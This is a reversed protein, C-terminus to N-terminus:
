YALVEVETRRNAQHEDDSCKVGNSCRNVLRTEGYGKAVLRDKSIGHSVIYNVAAQARRQSLAKNYADNGRSDTHSSLEIKLTPHEKMTAVLEDLVKAADPRINHKDFDYFINELVFRDGVVFPPKEEDPELALTVKIITDKTARIPGVSLADDSFGTKSASIKYTENEEADVKFEAKGDSLVKGVLRQGGASYITVDAGPLLARTKKNITVGELLIIIKPKVYGFSYIDDSGRGRVRNSSLYGAYEREGKTTIVFAFDDAASNVPYRMNVPKSMNSRSGKAHFIDLGGMGAFGNSSYYFDDGNVTPFMEDGASNITTGANIPKGWSGDSQLESYWIDVGGQGGPMDSAYYLTKEDASLAAHGLSYAKINNYPFAEERWVGNVSKYIILELNKRKVKKNYSRYREGDTGPHTRTVYLVEEKADSAIPGVHYRAHNFNLQKVSGAELANQDLKTSFVKLYSEGTMGSRDTRTLEPEATYLIGFSTTPTVSFEARETNVNAENHLTHATPKEMWIAASDTGAIALSVEPAAGFKSVYQEYQGKAERYKGNQKLAEAYNLLSEKQYDSRQVVQSYWKEALDYNNLYLYSEALHELDLTHANKKAAIKELVKAANAFEYRQLYQQAKTGASPQEQAMAGLPLLVAGLLCAALTSKIKKNMIKM